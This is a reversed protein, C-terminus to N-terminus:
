KSRRLINVDILVCSDGYSEFLIHVAFLFLKKKIKFRRLKVNLYQLNLNMMSTHLLFIYLLLIFQLSIFIINFSLTQVIEICLGDHVIEPEENQEFIYNRKKCRHELYLNTVM